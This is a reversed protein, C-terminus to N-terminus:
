WNAKVGVLESEVYEKWNKSFFNEYKTGTKEVFTKIRQAYENSGYIERFASREFNLLEDYGLDDVSQAVENKLVPTETNAYRNERFKDDLWLNNEDVIKRFVTGQLPYAPAFRYRVIPLDKAYMITNELGVNSEDDLGYIFLGVPAIGADYVASLVERTRGVTTGKNVKQLGEDTARELGFSIENCGARALKAILGYNVAGDKILGSVSGMGGFHVRGMAGNEQRAILEDCLGELFDPSALIDENQTWFYNVQNETYLRQMEDAVKVPDRLVNAGKGAGYVEKNTCFTCAKVCGKSFLIPAFDTVDDPIPTIMGARALPFHLRLPEGYQDLDKIRDRRGTFVYKENQMFAIGKIHDVTTSAPQSVYDLLERITEEGEGFIAYDFNKACEAPNTSAHIGGIVSIFDNMKQELFEKFKLTNEYQYTHSAFGVVDPNFGAVISALDEFSENALDQQVIMVESCKELAAVGIYGLALNYQNEDYSPREEDSRGVDLVVIKLTNNKQKSKFIEYPM